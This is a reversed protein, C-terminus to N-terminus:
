LGMEKILKEFFKDGVYLDKTKYRNIASHHVGILKALKRESGAKEIATKLVEVRFDNLVENAEDRLIRLEAEKKADFKM